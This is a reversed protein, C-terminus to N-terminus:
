FSSIGNHAHKGRGPRTVLMTMRACLEAARNAAGNALLSAPESM